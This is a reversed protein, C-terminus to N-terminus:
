RKKNGVNFRHLNMSEEDEVEINKEEEAIQALLRAKKAEKRDKSLRLPSVGTFKAGKPKEEPKKKVSSKANGNRRKFDKSRIQNNAEKKVMKTALAQKM